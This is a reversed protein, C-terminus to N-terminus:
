DVKRLEKIFKRAKHLNTFRCGEVLFYRKRVIIRHGLYSTVEQDM